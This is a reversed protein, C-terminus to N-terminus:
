RSAAACGRSDGSKIWESHAQPHQDYFARKSCKPKNPLHLQQKVASPPPTLSRWSVWPFGQLDDESAFLQVSEGRLAAFAPSWASWIITQIRWGSIRLVTWAGGNGSGHRPARVCGAASPDRYCHQMSWIKHVYYISDEVCQTGFWLCMCM